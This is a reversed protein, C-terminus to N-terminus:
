GGKALADQIAAAPTEANGCVTERLADEAKPDFMYFGCETACDDKNGGSLHWEWGEPVEGLLAEVSETPTRSLANRITEGHAFMLVVCKDRQRWWEVPREQALKMYELLEEVDALAKGVEGSEKSSATIFTRIRNAYADFEDHSDTYADIIDTLNDLAKMADQATITTM